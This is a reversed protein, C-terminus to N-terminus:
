RSQDKISLLWDFAEKKTVFGKTPVIPKNINLYFNFLIRSALSKVIVANALTYKGSEETASYKRAEPTIGLFDAAKFYVPLKAGNGFEFLFMRLQKVHDLTIETNNQDFEIEVIGHDNLKAIFVDKLEKFSIYNTNKEISM